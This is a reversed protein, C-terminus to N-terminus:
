VCENQLCVVKSKVCEFLETSMRTLKAVVKFTHEFFQGEANIEIDNLNVKSQDSVHTITFTLKYCANALNLKHGTDNGPM